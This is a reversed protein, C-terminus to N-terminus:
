ALQQNLTSAIQRLANRDYDCMPFADMISVFQELFHAEVPELSFSFKKDRNFLNSQDQVEIQKKKFKIAVKSLVSKAVKTTRDKPPTKPIENFSFVLAGLQKESLKLTIKM